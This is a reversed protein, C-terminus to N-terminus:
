ENKLDSTKVFVGNVMQGTRGKIEDYALEYCEEVTSGYRIALLRLIFLLDTLDQTKYNRGEHKQFSDLINACYLAIEVTELEKIREELMDHKTAVVHEMDLKLQQCLITMVVLMDGISDKILDINEKAIGACLEGYEEYLKLLQKKPEAKDIGRDISWKEVLKITKNM